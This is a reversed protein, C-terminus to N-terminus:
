WIPEDQGGGLGEPEEELELAEDVELPQDDEEFMDGLVSETGFLEPALMLRHKQTAGVVDLVLCDRKGTEPSPRLGRGIMQVYLGPNLTPAQRDCHVLDATPGHGGYVAHRQLSRSPAPASPWWSGSVSRRPRKTVYLSLLSDPM